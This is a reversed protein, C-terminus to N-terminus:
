AANEKPQHGCPCDCHVSRCAEHALDACAESLVARSVTHPRTAPQADPYTVDGCTRCKAAQVPKPSGNLSDVWSVTVAISGCVTCRARPRRSHPMVGYRARQRRILTFLDERFPELEVITHVTPAHDILWGITTFADRRATLPDPNPKRTISAPHPPDPHAWATVADVYEVVMGWLETADAAAGGGVIRGQSDVDVGRLFDSMNDVVNNGTIQLRDFRSGGRSVGTTPLTETVIADMLPPLVDLHWEFQHLWRDYIAAPDIANIPISM